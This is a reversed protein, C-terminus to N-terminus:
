RMTLLLSGLKSAFFFLEEKFTPLGCSCHELWLTSSHHEGVRNRGGGWGITVSNIYHAVICEVKQIGKNGLGEM